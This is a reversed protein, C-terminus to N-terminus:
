VFGCWFFRFYARAATSATNRFLLAASLSIMLLGCLVALLERGPHFAPVHQRDFAIDRSIDSLVGIGIMGTSFLSVAPQQSDAVSPKKVCNRDDGYEVEVEM